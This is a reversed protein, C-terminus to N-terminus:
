NPYWLLSLVRFCATRQPYFTWHESLTKGQQFQHLYTQLRILTSESIDSFNRSVLQPLTSANWLHLATQNAWWMQLKEIDFVWIPNQLLEFASLHFIDGSPCYAFDLQLGNQRNVAITSETKSGTEPPETQLEPPQNQLSVQCDSELNRM